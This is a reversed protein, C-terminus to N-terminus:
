RTGAVLLKERWPKQHVRCATINVYKEKMETAKTINGFEEFPYDQLKSM